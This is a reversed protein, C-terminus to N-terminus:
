ACPGWFWGKSYIDGSNTSIAGFFVEVGTCALGTGNVMRSWSSFGPILSINANVTPQSPGGPNWATVRGYIPIPAGLAQRLWQTPGFAATFRGWNAKCSPSYRLDLNGAYGEDTSIGYSAVTYADGDCRNTPDLGACSACRGTASAAAPSAPTLFLGAAITVIVLGLQPLRSTHHKISTVM